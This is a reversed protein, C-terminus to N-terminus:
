ASGGGLLSFLMLGASVAGVLSGGGAIWKMTNVTADQRIRADKLTGIEDAMVKHEAELLILRRSEDTASSMHAGLAEKLEDHLTRHDHAYSKLDDRLELVLEKVTLASDADTM